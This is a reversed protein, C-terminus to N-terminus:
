RKSRDAIVVLALAYARLMLSSCQNLWGGSEDNVSHVLISEFIWHSNRENVIGDHLACLIREDSGTELQHFM